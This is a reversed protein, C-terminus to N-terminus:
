GWIVFEVLFFDGGLGEGGVGGGRVGKGLRCVGGIGLSCGTVGDIM